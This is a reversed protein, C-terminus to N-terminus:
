HQTDVLTIPSPDTAGSVPPDHILTGGHGDSSAVFSSAMYNGLLAVKATHTGDSVTLTGPSNNGSYGITASAGATIDAFDLLDGSALQGTISGTFNAATDIKLTGTTGGFTVPGSYPSSLEAIAGSPVTVGINGDGNLDLKFSPELTESATSTGSVVGTALSSLNGSGDTNWVVYQDAVANKWAVEYGSATVAAGIPMWAGFEGVVVDMGAYKLSPGSGPNSDAYLFFRNGVETLSTTANDSIVTKPPGILGDGNLDLKLSPELSELAYDSGSVVGTALSSLNGSGDTNWVAYQDAGANKWAVEYGSATVAAGMPTWPGFEGAVVDAGAYKLSPGSGPNSDAYLFFRNGVETLSTTGNDAIVTKPLGILGDHNLDQHFSPELSEFAYDIGSVVGLTDSLFNGSSDTNWVTYQDASGNEWAVEYGSGTTVEAGIPTWSGFQGAMVDTSAYKLSPGSGGSGYLYFHTGVETLRTSGNAEIAITPLTLDFGLVDLLEKDVSTLNQITSNSYFEDFPDNSGQVGSNLFDGSDSGQGFDALKSNGGDISFYAAPATASASFLHTGASSYRFLDFPGVGPERGMAHTLEHLAVGVLLSSPIQSGMWVAGDAASNTASILGLAKGIASPVWFSSVTVPTGSGNVGSILSATPLSDVFTQDADSTEHSALAARLTTYPLMQGFFAGGEASTGLSTDYTVQITVTINNLILSELLSAATQMGDKFSQPASNQYNLIINLSV